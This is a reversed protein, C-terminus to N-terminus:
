SKVEEEQQRKRADLLYVFEQNAAQLTRALNTAPALLTALLSARIEEKGPMTALSEVGKVDLASGDFVGGKVVFGKHDKFFDRIIKAGASPNEGSFILATQGSLLPAISESSTGRVALKVLTNKYVKYDCQEKRLIERLATVSHVRSGKFDCLIVASSRAFKEKLEVVKEEKSARNM